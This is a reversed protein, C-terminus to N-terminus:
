RDGKPLFDVASRAGSAEAKELARASIGTASESGTIPGSTNGIPVEDVEWKKTDKFKEFKERLKSLAPFHEDARLIETLESAKASGEKFRFVKDVGLERFEVYADDIGRVYSEPLTKEVGNSFTVHWWRETDM